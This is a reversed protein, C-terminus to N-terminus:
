GDRRESLKIKLRPAQPQSFTLSTLARSFDISRAVTRMEALIEEAQPDAAALQRWGDIMWTVGATFFPLGREYAARLLVAAEEFRNDGGRELLWKARLIPGDPFHPFWASLNQLWEPWQKMNRSADTSLLVYGAAAALLPNHQKEFLAQRAVSLMEGALGARGSNLYAFLGGARSDRIVPEALLQDENQSVFLELFVQDPDDAIWWPWPLSVARTSNTGKIMAFPRVLGVDAVEHYGNLLRFAVRSPTMPGALEVSMTFDLHKDDEVGLPPEPEGVERRAARAVLYDYWARWHRGHFRQSGAVVEVGASAEFKWFDRIPEHISAGSKMLIVDTPSANKAGSFHGWARQRNRPESATLVVPLTEGPHLEATETLIEGSPLVAQLEYFGAPMLESASAQPHKSMPAVITTNGRGAITRGSDDTHRIRVPVAHSAAQGNLDGNIRVELTGKRTM